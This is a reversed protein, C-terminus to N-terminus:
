RQVGRDRDNKKTPNEEARVKNKFEKLEDLQKFKATRQQLEDRAKHMPQKLITGIPSYHGYKQTLDKSTSSLKVLGSM